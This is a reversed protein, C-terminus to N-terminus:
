QTIFNIKSSGDSYIYILPQNYLETAPRGLIDTISILKKASVETSELTNSLISYNYFEYEAREPSLKIAQGNDAKIYFKVQNGSNFPLLCSYIGDNALVDGNSGSDNMNFSQFKSNYSSTTAMLSVSSTNLASVSVVNNAVNVSFLEPPTISIEPHNILYPLRYRLSSMIGGFGYGGWPAFSIDDEVNSYFDNLSFLKNPDSAVGSAALSQINNVQSRINNTDLENIITRLHATYQKRYDENNFLVYTLPRNLSQDEGYYPDFQQPHSPGQPTFYDWGLLANIFSQSLDWPLMQFLGDEAKYLYYNHVYYGNYSDYNAIVTNVAFAWLVRDINLVSDLQGPNFRLTYILDTLDEWGYDSKLNYSSYYNTSDATGYWNLSPEGGIPTGTTDCFMGSGDCKFLAGNNENFHKKLFQKNISETNVYMGLYNGQVHLRTLNVEVTPLYKKYIKSAIYEKTFTADMWANALKMKKYDLFKQGSIWYNMDINYPVKPVGNDNPICFTSNGKYRVGASDHSIGNCSVTAPIRFSPNTFFSNQLITHYNPDEFEIFIDRISDKDYLGGSPDYLQQPDFISQSFCLFPIFFFLFILRM